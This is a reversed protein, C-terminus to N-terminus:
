HGIPVRELRMKGDQWRVVGIYPEGDPKFLQQPSVVQNPETMLIDGNRWLRAIDHDLRLREQDSELLSRGEWGSVVTSVEAGQLPGFQPGQLTHQLQHHGEPLPAPPLLGLDEPLIQRAAFARGILASYKGGNGEAESKLLAHAMDRYTFNGEPSAKMQRALMALGEDATAAIASRPDMGQAQKEHCIGTLVDYFAGTWLRSFNHVESSLQEPPASDPLTAPDQWVLRNIANRTYDGGTVNQGASHNIARGLQEGLAAALNPRSLDGGTQESVRDLVRDEKLSILLALLDGFSEHFAGADPSWAEFYGPRIADLLAHGAEHAVVEGSGASYVKEQTQADQSHFFFLGGEWRSYYANLQEGADATVELQPRGTAWQIPSGYAQQFVAVAKHVAAFANAAYHRRDEPTYVFKGDQAALGGKLRVKESSVSKGVSVGSLLTTGAPLVFSDQPNYSFELDAPPAGPAAPPPTHKSGVAPIHM